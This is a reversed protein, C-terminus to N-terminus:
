DSGDVSRSSVTTQLNTEIGQLAVDRTSGQPAMSIAITIRPPRKDRADKGVLVFSLYTVEADNGTLYGIEDQGSQPTVIREISNNVLRYAVLDGGANEFELEDSICPVSSDNCVVGSAPAFSYGTRIERAMQELALSVNTNAAIMASLQRQTRLSRAISGVALTVLISFVGISIVLEILTFGAASRRHPYSRINM